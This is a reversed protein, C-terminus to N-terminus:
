LTLSTRGSGKITEAALLSQALSELIEIDLPVDEPPVPTGDLRALHELRTAISPHAFNVIAEWHEMPLRIQSGFRWPSTDDLSLHEPASFTQKLRRTM